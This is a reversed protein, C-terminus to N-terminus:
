SWARCHMWSRAAAGHDPTFECTASLFNLASRLAGRAAAGEARARMGGAPMADGARQPLARRARHGHTRREGHVRARTRDSVEGMLAIGRAIQRLMAFTASWNPVSASAAARQGSSGIASRSRQSCRSMPAARPRGDLLKELRDTIGSLASHVVLVGRVTPWDRACSPPLTAGTPSRQFREHWRVQARGLSIARPGYSSRTSSRDAGPM